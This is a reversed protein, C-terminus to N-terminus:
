WKTRLGISVLRGIPNWNYNNYGNASNYFPAASDFLNKVNVYVENDGLLPNGTNFEYGLHLDILTSSAM